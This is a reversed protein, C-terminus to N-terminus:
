NAEQVSPFALARAQGQSFAPQNGPLRRRVMPQRKQILMWQVLDSKDIAMAWADHGSGPFETLKARGGHLDIEQCMLESNESKVWPDDKSCFAWVPLTVVQEVVDIASHGSVPVLAAFREPHRAGIEWTGLGGYSLGALIVRDQDIAWHQEAFDLAAMALRDKDEGRWNGESQPFITIFPWDNPDEAIVPGLGASLVKDGGHGAEFLGHLFLIAPYRRNPQYNKPIFVWVAHPESDVTVETQFFGTRHPFEKTSNAVYTGTCGTGLAGLILMGSIFLACHPFLGGGRWSLWIMAKVDALGWRSTSFAFTIPRINGRNPHFSNCHANRKPQLSKEITGM